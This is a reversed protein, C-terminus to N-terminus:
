DMYSICFLRRCDDYDIFISSCAFGLGWASYSSSVRCVRVELVEIAASIGMLGGIAVAFGTGDFTQTSCGGAAVCQGGGALNTSIMYAGAGTVPDQVIYGTGTWTYYSINQKPIVVTKGANIANQIDTKVDGSVQLIPLISSINNQNVNYIPIGQNNAAQLLQVTSVGKAGYLQEFIAHEMISSMQGSPIMFYRIKTDDGNKSKAVYINRDVDIMVGTEAVRTPVGFLNSVNVNASVIAESVDKMKAVGNSQAAVDEFSNLEFFYAMATAYLLEGGCDDSYPNNVCTTDKVAELKAKRQALLEQSIRSPNIGIAYYAGATVINSVSETGYAASVFQMNFAQDKGLGIANGTAVVVGEIKIQPKVNVLYAPVNFIGGYNNIVQEDTATAPVYSLTLRKGAVEAVSIALSLSTEATDADQLILSVKYKM